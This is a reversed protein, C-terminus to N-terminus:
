CFTSIQPLQLNCHFPVITSLQFNHFSNSFLAPKTQDLVDRSIPPVRQQKKNKKKNEKLKKLPFHHTNGWDKPQTQLNTNQSIEMWFQSLEKWSSRKSWDGWFRQRQIEPIKNVILKTQIIWAVLRINNFNAQKLLISLSGHVIKLLHMFSKLLFVFVTFVNKYINDLVNFMVCQFIFHYSNRPKNKKKKSKKKKKLFKNM